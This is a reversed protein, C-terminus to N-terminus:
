KTTTKIGKLYISDVDMGFSLNMSALFNELEILTKKGANRFRLYDLRNLRCLDGITDIGESKLINLARVSIECDVLRIAFWQRLGELEHLEEKSVEAEIVQARKRLVEIEAKLVNNQQKLDINEAYLKKIASLDNSKRIAKDAIQRVRERNLGYKNGIASFDEGELLKTLFDGERCDLVGTVELMSVVNRFFQTRVGSNVCISLYRNLAVKDRHFSILQKYEESEKIYTTKLEELKSRADEVDGADDLVKMLMDKDVYFIGRIMKKPLVGGDIWNRITQRSFGSIAAAEAIKIWKM